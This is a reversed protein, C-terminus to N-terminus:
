DPRDWHHCTFYLEGWWSMWPMWEDEGDPGCPQFNYADESLFIMTGVFDGNARFYLCTVETVDKGAMLRKRLSPPFCVVGGGPAGPLCLWGADELQGPNVGGGARAQSGASLIVLGVLLCAIILGSLKKM